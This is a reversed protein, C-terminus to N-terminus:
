SEQLLLEAKVVLTTPVRLDTAWVVMPMNVNPPTVILAGMSEPTVMFKLPPM